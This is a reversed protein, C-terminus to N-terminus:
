ILLFNIFSLFLQQSLCKKYKEIDLVFEYKQIMKEMESISDMKQKNKKLELMLQGKIKMKQKVKLKLNKNEKQLTNIRADKVDIQISVLNFCMIKQVKICSVQNHLNQITNYVDDLMKKVNSSAIISEKLLSPCTTMNFFLLDFHGFDQAPFTVKPGNRGKLNEENETVIYQLINLTTSVDDSM